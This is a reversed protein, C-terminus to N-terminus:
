QWKYTKQALRAQAIRFFDLGLGLSTKTDLLHQVYNHVYILNEAPFSCLTHSINLARVAYFLTRGIKIKSEKPHPLYSVNRMDFCM